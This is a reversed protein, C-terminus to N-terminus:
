AALGMLATVYLWTASNAAMLGLKTFTTHDLAQTRTAARPYLSFGSNGEPVVTGIYSHTNM